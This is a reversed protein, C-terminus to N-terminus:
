SACHAACFYTYTGAQSFTHQYITGSVSLIGAPCNMDDPSCFQSDAACAEGSTVSHGSSDWTWRVTDGVSIDLMAPSFVFAGGPGVAVDFVQSTASPPTDPVRRGNQDLITIAAPAGWKQLTATAQRAGIESPAFFAVGAMVVLWCIRRAIMNSRKM